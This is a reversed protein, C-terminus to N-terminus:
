NDLNIGMDELEFQNYGSFDQLGEVVQEFREPDIRQLDNIYDITPQASFENSLGEEIERYGFDNPGVVQDRLAIEAPSQYIPRRSAALAAETAQRQAAEKLKKDKEIEGLLAQQRAAASETAEQARKLADADAQERLSIYGSDGSDFAEANNTLQVFNAAEITLSKFLFKCMYAEPIIDKGIRRRTGMLEIGFNELYAWEIYRLGPIEIHYIAPFTMAIPGERYPRNMM